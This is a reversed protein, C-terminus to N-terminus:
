PPKTDIHRPMDPLRRSRIALRISCAGRRKSREAIAQCTFRGHRWNGNREGKPAGSGAAGGRIRCRSKGAVKPARCPTGSRTRAGCKGQM